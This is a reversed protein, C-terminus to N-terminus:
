YGQVHNIIEEASLPRNYIRVEDIMGKFLNIGTSVQGIYLKQAWQWQLPGSSSTTDTLVLIGDQYCKVTNVGDYTFAVHHWGDWTLATSCECWHWGQNVTNLHIWIKNYWIPLGYAGVAGAIENYGTFNTTPSYVWAEMTIASVKFSTNSGCDVYSNSGNFSLAGNVQGDVWQPNGQLTGHNGRWSSDYATTGAGEDLKWYGVESSVDNLEVRDVYFTGSQPTDWRLVHIDVYENASMVRSVSIKQWSDNLTTTTSAYTWGSQSGYLCIRVTGTGKVYASATYTAGTEVFYKVTSNVGEFSNNGLTTVQLSRDGDMSDQSIGLTEWPPPVDNRAPEWGTTIGTEFSGNYVMAYDPTEVLEVRDVYFTGSQPTDWRLVHIDVYENASMVRSVSIKQWYSNNLTVTKNAYTWGSQSGYLCIRVTGTGKVYASATYTTGTEVFYKVTSKIGEFSNTGSTTVQLSRDGDMSDLSIGLTEWPPPFGSRAPEWGTTVGTEFSGNYVMTYDPTEVLEARDVYFTGSQPTDWRLVHIDVYENASMVRTVSIKQWYSNNLTVTKNAYTWGGKSGYLCIRVTGTGKVYASATYTRGTEMFYKVTSYIGEFSNTGPTTVQASRDEDISASSTGLTEGGRAAGWGAAVGLEYGGNYVMTYDPTEVLEVRDVYFTVAQPTDWTIVYLYLVEDDAVERTVSIKQWYSNNLTVTKNAYTWGGKSGWLCIRINGANKVYASATYTKGKEVAYYITSYVGEFLNNGPTTVRLSKAGDMSSAYIGITGGGTVPGWGTTVGTEFSSNKLLNVRQWGISLQLYGATWCPSREKLAYHSNSIYLPNTSICGTGASTGSYNQNSCFVNNYTSVCTASGTCVIGNSSTIISHTIDLKSSDKVSIAQQAKGITINENTAVSNGTMELGINQVDFICNKIRVNKASDLKVGNAGTFMINKLLVNTISNLSVLGTIKVIDAYTGRLEIGDKLVLNEYYIGKNLRLVKVVGPEAIDIADQISKFPVDAMGTENAGSSNPDVYIEDLHRAYYNLYIWNSSLDHVDIARARFKILYPAGGLDYYAELYNTSASDLPSWVGENNISYELETSKVGDEDASNIIIKIQGPTGEQLAGTCEPLDNFATWGKVSATDQIYVYIRQGNAVTKTPAVTLALSNDSSILPNDTSASPGPVSYSNLAVYAIRDGSILSNDINAPIAKIYLNTNWAPGAGKDRKFIQIPASLSNEACMNRLTITIQGNDPNYAINDKNIVLPWQPGGGWIDYLKGGPTHMEDRMFMYKSTSATENLKTVKNTFIFTATTGDYGYPGNFCHAVAAFARGYPLAGLPFTNYIFVKVYEASSNTKLIYGSYTQFANTLPVFWFNGDPTNTLNNLAKGKELINGSSDYSEWYIGLMPNHTLTRSGKAMISFDMRTNGPQTGCIQSAILCGNSSMLGRSNDVGIGNAHSVFTERRAWVASPMTEFDGEQCINTGDATLVFNDVWIQGSKAEKEIINDINHDTFYREGAQLNGDLFISPYLALYYNVSSYNIIDPRPYMVYQGMYKIYNNGRDLASWESMFKQFVYHEPYYGPSTQLTHGYYRTDSYQEPLKLFEEPTGPAESAVGTETNAIGWGRSQRRETIGDANVYDFENTEIMKKFTPYQSGILAPGGSWYYKGDIGNADHGVMPLPGGGNHGFWDVWPFEQLSTLMDNTPFNPTTYALSHVLIIKPYNENKWEYLKRYAQEVTERTRQEKEALSMGAFEHYDHLPFLRDLAYQPNGSYGPVRWYDEQGVMFIYIGQKEYRSKILPKMFKELWFDCYEQITDLEPALNTAVIGAADYMLSDYPMMACWQPVAPTINTSPPVYVPPTVGPPYPYYPDPDDVRVGPNYNTKAPGGSLTWGRLHPTPLAGAQVQMHNKYCSIVSNSYMDCSYTDAMSMHNPYEWSMYIQFSNVGLEKLSNVYATGVDGGSHMLSVMAVGGNVLFGGWIVFGATMKMIKKM